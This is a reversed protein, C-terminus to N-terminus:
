LKCRYHAIMIEAVGRLRDTEEEQAPAQRPSVTHARRRIPM